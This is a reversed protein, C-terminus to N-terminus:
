AFFILSVVVFLPVLVLGSYLLYSFFSPMRVGQEEAMSKVMFNPANGIYTNAGMFVAGCSIAALFAAPSAGGPGLPVTSMLGGIGGEVGLLGVAASTFTLYTPANDLVSSLAGTAWFYQWPATLGLKSGYAELLALAPVMSAFIGAFIIAVELIPSWNFQNLRRGQQSGVTLSLIMLGVMVFERLFPLDVAESIANLQASLAVTLVVGILLIVHVRGSIGLREHVVADSGRDPERPERRYAYTDLVFFAAITVSNMFLWERWLGLTWTFDVGNLFGLFLPPDGLPTLLGGLNCIIFIAFVFVHAKRKRMSNARLLPRVLLMAAGTTGIFSALVAGVIMFTTNTSPTARISGSLHIGGTVSFLAALLVIFSAYDKATGLVQTRGLEGFRLVVYSLTPVGFAIAVIAKNRHSEFWRSAMLPLVAISLLMGVFPLVWWWSLQRGIELM